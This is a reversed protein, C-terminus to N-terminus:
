KEEYWDIISTRPCSSWSYRGTKLEFIDKKCSVPIGNEVMIIDSNPEIKYLIRLKKKRRVLKRADKKTMPTLKENKTYLIQEIFKPKSVGIREGEKKLKFDVPLVKILKIENFESTM